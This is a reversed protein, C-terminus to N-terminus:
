LSAYCLFASCFHQQSRTRLLTLLCQCRIILKWWKFALILASKTCQLKFLEWRHEILFPVNKEASCTVRTHVPRNLESEKPTVPVRRAVRGVPAAAMRDVEASICHGGWVAGPHSAVDWISCVLGSGTMRRSMCKWHSLSQCLVLLDEVHPLLESRSSFSVSGLDQCVMSKRAQM